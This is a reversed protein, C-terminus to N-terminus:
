LRLDITDFLFGLPPAGPPGWLLAGPPGWSSMVPQKHRPPHDCVQKCRASISNPRPPTNIVIFLAHLTLLPLPSPVLPTSLLPPHIHNIYATYIYSVKLYYFINFLFFIPM